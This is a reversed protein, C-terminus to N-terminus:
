EHCRLHLFRPTWATSTLTVRSWRQLLLRKFCTPCYIYLTHYMTIGPIGCRTKKIQCAESRLDRRFITFLMQQKQQVRSWSRKSCCRVPLIVLGVRPPFIAGQRQFSPFWLVEANWTIVQHTSSSSFGLDSCLPAKQGCNSPFHPPTQHQLIPERPAFVDLFWVGVRYTDAVHYAQHVYM